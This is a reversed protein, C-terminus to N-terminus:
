PNAAASVPLTTMPAPSSPHSAAAAAPRPNPSAPVMPAPTLTPCSLPVTCSAQVRVLSCALLCTPMCAPPCVRVVSVPKNLDCAPSCRAPCGVWCACGGGNNSSIPGCEHWAGPDATSTGHTIPFGDIVNYGMGAAPLCLSPPCTACIIRVAHGATISCAGETNGACRAARGGGGM